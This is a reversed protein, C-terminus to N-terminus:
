SQDVAIINDLTILRGNVKLYVKNQDQLVEEVKGTILTATTVSKGQADTATVQYSYSGDAVQKGTSDKGDWSVKNEGSSLSGADITRVLQNASNYISVKTTKANGGLIFSLNDAQGSKVVFNSGQAKVTKDLFSVAQAMQMSGQLNSLATNNSDYKTNLNILQEVSSFQALQAVFDKPDSPSLPDQYRLQTTLLKLFDEKGMTMGTLSAASSSSSTSSTSTTSSNTNPISSVSPTTTTKPTSSTAVSLSTNIM